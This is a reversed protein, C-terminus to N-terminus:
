LRREMRMALPEQGPGQTRPRIIGAADENLERSGAVEGGLGVCVTEEM